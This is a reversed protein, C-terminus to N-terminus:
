GIMLNGDIQMKEEFLIAGLIELYDFFVASYIDTLM